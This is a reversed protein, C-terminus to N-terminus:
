TSTPCEVEVDFHIRWLADWVLYEEGGSELLVNHPGEERTKVGLKELESSAERAKEQTGFSVHYSLKSDGISTQRLLLGGCRLNHARERRFDRGATDQRIQPVASELWEAFM